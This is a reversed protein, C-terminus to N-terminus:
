ERRVLWGEFFLMFAMIFFFPTTLPLGEATKLDTLESAKLFEVKQGPFLDLIEQDPIKGPASERPDFNVSFSGFPKADIPIKVPASETKTPDELRYGPPPRFLKYTGPNWTESFQV